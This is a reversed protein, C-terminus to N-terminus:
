RFLAGSFFLLVALALALLVWTGAGLTSRTRVAPVAGAGEPPHEGPSASHGTVYTTKEIADAGGRNVENNFGGTSPTKM